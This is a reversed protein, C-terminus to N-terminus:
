IFVSVQNMDTSLIILLRLGRDLSLVPRNTDSFCVFFVTGEPFLVSVSIPQDSSRCVHQVASDHSDEQEVNHHLWSTKTKM